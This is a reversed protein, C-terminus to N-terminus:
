LCCVYKGLSNDLIYKSKDLNLKKNMNLSITFDNYDDKEFCEKWRALFAGWKLTKNNQKETSWSYSILLGNKYIPKLSKKFLSRSNDDNHNTHPYCIDLYQYFFSKLSEFNMDNESKFALLILYEFFKLKLLLKSQITGSINLSYNPDLFPTEIVMYTLETCYHLNEYSHQKVFNRTDDEEDFLSTEWLPRLSKKLILNEEFHLQNFGDDLKINIFKRKLETIQVHHDLYTQQMKKDKILMWLEKASDIFLRKHINQSQDTKDALLAFIKSIIKDEFIRESNSASKFNTLSIFYSLPNKDNSTDLSPNLLLSEFLLNYILATAKKELSNTMLNEILSPNVLSREDSALVSCLSFHLISNQLLQTKKAYSYIWEYAQQQIKESHKFCGNTCLGIELAILPNNQKICIDFLQFLFKDCLIPQRVVLFKLFSKIKGNICNEGGYSLVYCYSKFFVNLLSKAEILYASLITYAKQVVIKNLYLVEQIFLLSEFIVNLNSTFMDKDWPTLFYKEFNINLQNTINKHVDEISLTKCVKYWTINDAVSPNNGDVTMSVGSNEM